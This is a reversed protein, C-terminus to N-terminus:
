SSGLISKCELTDAMMANEFYRHAEPGAESSWTQNVCLSQLEESTM